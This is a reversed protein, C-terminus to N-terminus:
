RVKKTRATWVKTAPAGTRKATVKVRLRKGRDARTVKYRAKKAGKIKKKGRFWQYSISTAKGKWKGKTVKLIKGVRAAPKKKIKPKKTNHVAIQRAKSTASAKKFSPRRATVTVTIKKGADAKKLKYTAKTAKKIAKGNRKWQYAVKKAAPRWTGASAKLKKGVRAKGKIVPAKAVQLRDGPQPDPKPPSPKNPVRYAVPSWSPEVAGAVALRVDANSCQDLDSKVYVGEAMQWALSKGDPSITPHDFEDDGGGTLVCRLTPTAPVSTRANGTVQYVLLQPDSTPGRMTVLRSGDRSLEPSWQEEAYCWDECGPLQPRVDEDSFWPVSSTASLDRLYIYEWSRMIVRDNSIWKTGSRSLEQAGADTWRDAASFRTGVEVSYGFGRWASQVFAVRKGDPSVHAGINNQIGGTSEPLLTGIDFSSLLTGDTRVRVIDDGKLATIIGDDSMSPSAYRGTATFADKTVQIQGSGDGRAMWINFDKIFVLTGPAAAAPTSRAAAAATDITTARAPADSTAAAPALAGGTAALGTLALALSALAATPRLPTRPM